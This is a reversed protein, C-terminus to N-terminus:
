KAPLAGFTRSRRAYDAIAADLTARRFETWPTELFLLEAYAAHWLLFSSLRSEGGTRVLLDVPPLGPLSLYNELLEPNIKEPVNRSAAADSSLRRIADILQMKGDIGIVLTLTLKEDEISIASAKQLAAALGGMCHAASAHPPMVGSLRIGWLALSEAESTVFAELAELAAPSQATRDPVFVSLYRVGREMCGCVTEHMANLSKAPGASRNQPAADLVLAMHRPVAVSPATVVASRTRVSAAALTTTSPPTM